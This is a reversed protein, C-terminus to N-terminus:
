PVVRSRGRSETEKNEERLVDQVVSVCRLLFGDVMFRM